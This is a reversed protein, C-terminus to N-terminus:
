KKTDLNQASESLDALKIDFVPMDVDVDTTFLALNTSCPLLIAEGTKPDTVVNHDNKSVGMTPDIYFGNKFYADTARPSLKKSDQTETMIDSTTGHFALSFM